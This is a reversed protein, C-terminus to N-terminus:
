HLMVGFNNVCGCVRFAVAGCLVVFAASAIPPRARVAGWAVIALAGVALVSCVALALDLGIADILARVPTWREVMGQTRLLQRTMVADVLTLLSGFAFLVACTRAARARAIQPDAVPPGIRRALTSIIIPDVRV